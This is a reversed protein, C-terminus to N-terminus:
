SASRKYARPNGCDTFVYWDAPCARDAEDMTADPSVAEGTYINHAVFGLTGDGVAYCGIAILTSGERMIKQRM